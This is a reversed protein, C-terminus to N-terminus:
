IAQRILNKIIFRAPNLTDIVPKPLLLPENCIMGALLEASIPCTILGKSGHGTNIYLNPHHEPIANGFQWKRDKRLQAFTEIFADAVPAPGVMPMYDPTSCRFATRGELQDQVDSVQAAIDPLAESLKSINHQHDELTVNREKGKLDFTAGFCFRGEQAPSIYGEGCVVTQLSPDIASEPTISVQGRIPKLPLHATQEFRNALEANCIILHSAAFSQDTVTDIQWHEQQRSISAVEAHAIEIDPHTTLQHCFDRPSVWGADPFFLGPSEIRSGAISSLEGASRYSVLSDPYLGQALMSQQRQQEKETTALQIVGCQSWLTHEPDLHNLLNVSHLFGTLHLEGQHTWSVPLKAYLAGQRNGSGATALECEKEILRVKIGRQALSWATSCGSLGGGIVTVAEPKTNSAPLKFWPKGERHEPKPGVYSGVLMERKRGFGKQKRVDFGVEKLGRRVVGAATFTSFTTGPHSLRAMQQFLEPSWMDPNKAPAFGDLYWADVQGELRSFSEAADGFMLTLKIRGEAFNLQHYGAAAPPYQTHLLAALESYEPWASLAKLLDEKTLPHKEVSLYHLNPPVASSDLIHKATVLFNLGSGFGTEAIILTQQDPPFSEATLRNGDIFVYRSEDAGAGPNFYIDDFTACHPSNDKCWRILANRINHM